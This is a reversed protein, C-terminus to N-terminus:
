FVFFHSKRYCPILPVTTESVKSIYSQYYNAPNLLEVMENWMSLELPPLVWLADVTQVQPLHLAHYIEM